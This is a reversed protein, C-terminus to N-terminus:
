RVRNSVHLHPSNCWRLSGFADLPAQYPAIVLQAGSVLCLCNQLNDRLLPWAFKIAKTDSHRALIAAVDRFRESWAWYPVPLLAWSNATQIDAFSGM